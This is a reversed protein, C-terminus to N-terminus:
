EVVQAPNAEIDHAADILRRARERLREPDLELEISGRVPGANVHLEILAVNKEGDRFVRAYSQFNGAPFVPSIGIPATSSGEFWHQYKHGASTPIRPPIPTHTFTPAAAGQNITQM